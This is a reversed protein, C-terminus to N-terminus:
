RQCITFSPCNRRSGASLSVVLRHIARYKDTSPSPASQTVSGFPGDLLGVECEDGLEQPQENTVAKGGCSSIVDDSPISCHQYRHRYGSERDVGCPKELCDHVLPRELDSSGVGEGTHNKSKSPGCTHGYPVFILQLDWLAGNVDAEDSVLGILQGWTSPGTWLQWWKSIIKRIRHGLGM